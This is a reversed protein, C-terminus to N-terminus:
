CMHQIEGYFESQDSVQEINCVYTVLVYAM